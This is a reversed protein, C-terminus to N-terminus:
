VEMFLNDILRTKGFRVALAILIEGTITNVSKLTDTNVIEVYDIDALPMTNIAQTILDKVINADREGNEIVSKAKILSKYLITAQKRLETSLYVNRSSMALGDPERIIPCGIIEVDMNLERTMKKIVMLQQADKQGFYAKTPSVINFLKAVVTTVGKFHGPRSAGCLTDTIDFVEIYTNYGKPYMEDVTPYFIIDAGAEKALSADREFDRPYATFDENPGFQTPNVFISLVCIDCQSKCLSILSTHGKHLYGMTPVFGITKNQKRLGNLHQRLHETKEFTLM